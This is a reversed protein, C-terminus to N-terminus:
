RNEKANKGGGLDHRQTKRRAPPASLESQTGADVLATIVDGPIRVAGGVKVFTIKRLYIWRRITREKLNLMRSVDPVTYLPQEM